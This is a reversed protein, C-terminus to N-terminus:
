TASHTGHKQQCRVNRTTHQEKSSSGTARLKIQVRASGGKSVMRPNAKLVEGTARDLTAEIKSIIASNDKSHHFLEVASGATLPFKLDFTIIQATFSSSLPVPQSPPCLVCGVNVYVGM